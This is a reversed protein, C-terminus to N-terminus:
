MYDDMNIDDANVIDDVDDVDVTYRLIGGIGGFGHCFQTGESSKDTVLEMTTGFTKHNDALWEVLPTTEKIEYITVDPMTYVISVEKTEKNTINYRNVSLNDWVILTQIIGNILASMTQMIGFCYKNTNQAIVDFFSQILKKEQVFKVSSLLDCSLTIAENFGHDGGYSIDIYRLVKCVIRPDLLNSRDLETKIEASGAIIIGEVNVKDGTIFCRSAEESIKRVYNHRKEVRLRGFRAASQGGRGHKKPLDVDFKHVIERSNGTLKGFLCGNGDVIIFGFTSEDELICKLPDTHFKNDCMYLSTNIPRYPEFSINLKKEKGDDTAITGCYMVLGNPPIVNYMKLRHQVSTIAGLVSLKNVRSKINSATGYETTLLSQVRSVQDKPQIILSIMSTGEGRVSELNKILKKMRWSKIADDTESEM